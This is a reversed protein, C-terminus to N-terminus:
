STLRSHAVVNITLIDAGTQGTGVIIARIATPPDLITSCAANANTASGAIHPCTNTPYTGFIATGAAIEEQSACCGQIDMETTGAGKYSYSVSFGSCQDPLYIPETAGGVLNAYTITLSFQWGFGRPGIPILNANGASGTAVGVGKATMYYPM